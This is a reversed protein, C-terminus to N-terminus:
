RLSCYVRIRTEVNFVMTGLQKRLSRRSGRSRGKITSSGWQPSYFMCFATVGVITVNLTPSINLREFAVMRPSLAKSWGFPKGRCRGSRHRESASSTACGRAFDNPPPRTVMMLPCTFNVQRLSRERKSRHYKQVDQLLFATTWDPM